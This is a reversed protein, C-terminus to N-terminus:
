GGLVKAMDLTRRAREVIPLDLLQGGLAVAGDGRAQAEDFARMVRAAYDVDAASPSFLENIIETQGPHIMSKGSFGLRRSQLADARLGDPDELDPWVGDFSLKRAAACANVISSRAFLLEAAEGERLAPLGLDLAYDEGGFILGVVRPSASATRYANILGLGSEIAAIIRVTGRALGATRELDDLIGALTVVDEPVDVKPAVLGELGPRVVARLDADRRDSGIANMRVWRQPGAGSSPRGLSAAIVARAGEKEAPPVGDELDLMAVDLAGPRFEGLGLARDIMRQRHGPVFMLSRMLVSM